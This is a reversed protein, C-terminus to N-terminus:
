QSNPHERRWREAIREKDLQDAKIRAIHAAFSNENLDYYMYNALTQGISNVEYETQAELKGDDLYSKKLNVVQKFLGLGRLSDATDNDLYYKHMLEVSRSYRTHKHYFALLDRLIGREIFGALKLFTDKTIVNLVYLKFINGIIEAKKTEDLREILLLVKESISENYEDSDNLENVFKERDEIPIESLRDFFVALKKFTHRDKLTNGLKFLSVMTGVLPIDKLLGDTMIADLGVEVYDKALGLTESKITDNFSKNLANSM